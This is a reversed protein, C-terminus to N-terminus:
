RSIVFGQREVRGDFEVELLYWGTPVSAADWELVPGEMRSLDVITRGNVDRVRVSRENSRENNVSSLHIRLNTSAPLLAIGRIMSLSSPLSLSTSVSLAPDAVIKVIHGVSPIDDVMTFLIYYGVPTVAEDTPITATMRDGQQTFQLRLLRANGSEMFHTRQSTGILVVDTPTTTRELLFTISDGRRFTTTSLDSIRPRVGRQLYPPTFAEITSRAPENGPEGEGGVVIVRGDPVLIPMAHYERAINMDTLRRWSDESPNYLDTLAMYGWANTPTPDEPDEKEGGLVLVTGDPLGVVSARSRVPAFSRGLEWRNSTARYREVFTGPAGDFNKYGIAIVDGEPTVVLEHDAHDGNPMRDSQIFDAARRWERTDPNFLQPPRHTMLIEGTYLLVIPSVENGLAISGAPQWELTLPDMVESTRTRIPNDVGGGGVAVLEGNSLQAMSPYWRADNIPSEAKWIKNVPDFTKVLRTGPGYIQRDAGGVFILRGDTMLRVAHCGQIGFSEPGPSVQDTRPDFYIPDRTDHCWFLRGDPLLAGSNTGGLREGPDGIVDWVGRAAEPQVTDSLILPAGPTDIGRELYEYGKAAVGLLLSVGEKGEIRYAGNIDTRAERFYLTDPTFLTIRADPVPRGTSDVIAGSIEQSMTLTVSTLMSIAAVIIARSRM